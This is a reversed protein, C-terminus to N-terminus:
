DQYEKDQFKEEQFKLLCLLAYNSLDRLTDEVKEDKIQFNGKKYFSKLRSYKDGIRVLIGKWGFDDFNELFHTTTYDQNKKKVLELCNEQEEVFNKITKKM